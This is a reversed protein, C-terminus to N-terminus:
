LSAATVIESSQHDQKDQTTAIPSRRGNPRKIVSRIGDVHELLDPKVKKWMPDLVFDVGERRALKAAPVFDSDGAVLIIKDVMRKISLSAIDLGIKMDVAKQRAVYVVDSDELSDITRKRKLLDKMLSPSVTWAGNIDDLYGLRLAVKRLKKLEDHFRFRAKATETKALDVSRGSLPHHLKKTLPACDYVIIRYLFGTPLAKNKNKLHRCCLKHLQKALEEPAITKCVNKRYQKIFFEGDVLIATREFNM